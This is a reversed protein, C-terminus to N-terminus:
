LSKRFLQKMRSRSLVDAMGEWWNKYGKKPHCDKKGPFHVTKMRGYPKM